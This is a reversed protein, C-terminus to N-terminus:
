RRVRLDVRCLAHAAALARFAARLVSYRHPIVLRVDLVALADMAEAAVFHARLM